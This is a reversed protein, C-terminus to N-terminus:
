AARPAISTYEPMDRSPLESGNTKEEHTAGHDAGARNIHRVSNAILNCRGASQAFNDSRSECSNQTSATASYSPLGADHTESTQPIPLSAPMQFLMLPM